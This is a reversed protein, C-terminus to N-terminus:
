IMVIKTALKTVFQFLMSLQKAHLGSLRLNNAILSKVLRFEFALSQEYDCSDPYLDSNSYSELRVKSSIILQVVKQHNEACFSKISELETQTQHLEDSKQQLKEQLESNEKNKSKLLKILEQKSLNEFM